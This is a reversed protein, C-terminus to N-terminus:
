LQRFLNGGACPSAMEAADRRAEPAKKRDEVWHFPAQPSGAAGEGCTGEWSQDPAQSHGGAGPTRLGAKDRPGEGSGRGRAGPGLPAPSELGSRSSTRTGWGSSGRAGWGGRPSDRRSSGRGRAM